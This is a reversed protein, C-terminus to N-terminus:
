RTNTIGTIIGFFPKLFMRQLWAYRTSAKSSTLSQFGHLMEWDHLLEDINPM